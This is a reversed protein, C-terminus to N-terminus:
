ATTDIPPAGGEDFLDPWLRKALPTKLALAHCTNANRPAEGRPRLAARERRLRSLTQYATVALPGLILDNVHTCGKIGGIRELVAKRWGPGIKLGKLCAYDPAIGGCSDYPTDDMKAEAEIVVGHEDITLRALMNHLLEGAAITTRDLNALSYSKVDSIRGEIDWLGDEREFGQCKIERTHLLTRPVAPRSLPM